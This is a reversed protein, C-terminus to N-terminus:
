SVFVGARLPHEPARSACRRALISMLPCDERWAPCPAAGLSRRESGGGNARRVFASARWGARDDAAVVAAYAAAALRRPCRIVAVPVVVLLVTYILTLRPTRGSCVEYAMLALLFPLRYYLNNWPDLACRLLLVLALLLM